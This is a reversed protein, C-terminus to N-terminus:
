FSMPLTAFLLKIADDDFYFGTGVYGSVYGYKAGLLIQEAGGQFYVHPIPEVHFGVRLNPTGRAQGDGVAPYAGLDFDFLDADLRVLDRGLYGSIGVGGGDEKVGLRFAVDRWRKNMQFTLRYTPTRVWEVYSTGTAPYYRETWNVQGQPYDNIEFNYWFDEQPRLRIGITNSGGGALPNGYFFPNGDACAEWGAPCPQTGFYLRGTYYVEARLNSFGSIVGNANEITDNLLDVTARDNVLAGITGQGDDVKGTISAVDDLARDLKDTADKVKELEEDVDAGSKEAIEELNATLRRLSDVIAGIDKQNSEAILRVSDTIADVNALTNEVHETNAQNEAVRRLAATIAKVDDTVDEVQKEIKELDAPESHLAIVDGEGLQEAGGGTLLSVYKDGLLGSARLEASTGAPLQYADKIALTLIAHDGEVALDEVVGVPVGALKVASQKYLGDASPVSLRLRYIGEDPRTGDMSWLSFFAILAGVVLVFVGVRFERSWGM